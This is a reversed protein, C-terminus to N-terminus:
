KGEKAKANLAEREAACEDYCDAMMKKTVKRWDDFTRMPQHDDFGFRTRTGITVSFGEGFVPYLPLVIYADKEKYCVRWWRDKFAFQKDTWRWNPHNVLEEREFYEIGVNEWWCLSGDEISELLYRSDHQSKDIEVLWSLYWKSVPSSQLAVLDGVKAPEDGWVGRFASVGGRNIGDGYNRSLCFHTIYNLIELRARSKTEPNKM